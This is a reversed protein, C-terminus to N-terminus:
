ESVAAWVGNVVKLIKGNDELTVEPLTGGFAEVVDAIAAIIDASLILDKIDDPDGGLACYLKKLADINNMKGEMFDYDRYDNM